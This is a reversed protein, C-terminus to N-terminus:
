DETDYRDARYSRGRAYPREGVRGAETTSPKKSKNKAEQAEQRKEKLSKKRAAEQKRLRDFGDEVGAKNMNSTLMLSGFCLAGAEDFMKQFM